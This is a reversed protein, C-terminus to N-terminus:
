MILSVRGQRHRELRGALDLELLITLVAGAPLGSARVIDDVPTPTPSLAELVARRATPAVDDARFGDEDEEARPPSLMLDVQSAVAELVHGANAVLTAGDRILMNTGEARPDLPSGPVALVIRGQEAAFRATHLSGSKLAAEVVVTGVALGSILRNRRPFDRGRPEWGFPMESLLAGGSEVIRTALGINEPPYLRDLGGAMVAVTGFPLAAEHAAADIGRALGSVTVYGAEGIGAAIQGAIKRGAASANRSGVVAVMPRTLVGPGGQVAVLPPPGEIRRLHRPYDPEGLGVFRAGAAEARALEADIEADSAIRIARGGGLRVLDPLVDLARAASGYRNILQRFSVPGVNETRILKLWARRQQPTLAIGGAREDDRESTSAFGRAANGSMDM